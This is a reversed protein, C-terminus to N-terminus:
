TRWNDSTGLPGAAQARKTGTPNAPAPCGGADGYDFYRHSLTKEDYAAAWANAREYTSFSTEIDSAGAADVQGSLGASALASRLNDVMQAWATGNASTVNGCGGLDDNSTGVGLTLRTWTPVCSVFGTAFNFAATQIVDTTHFNLAFDIADEAGSNAPRGFDLIV